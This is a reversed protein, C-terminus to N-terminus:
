SRRLLRRVIGPRPPPPAADSPTAAPVAPAAEAEPAQPGLGAAPAGAAGPAAPAGAAGPAAPAGPLVGEGAPRGGRWAIVEALRQTLRRAMANEPDIEIAREAWELAAREDGRELAVRALGVVAIANRSDFASAQRYAQEAQDLLGLALLNEANLLLEIM